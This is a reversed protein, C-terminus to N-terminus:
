QTKEYVEKMEEILVGLTIGKKDAMIRLEERIERDVQASLTVTKTIENLVDLITWEKETEVLGAMKITFFKAPLKDLPIPPVCQVQCMRKITSVINKITRHDSPTDPFSTQCFRCTKHKFKHHQNKDKVYNFGVSILSEGIVQLQEKYKGSPRYDQKGTGEIAIATNVVGVGSKKEIGKAIKKERHDQAKRTSKAM